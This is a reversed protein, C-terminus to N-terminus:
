IFPCGDGEGAREETGDQLVVAHGDVADFAGHSTGSFRFDDTLNPWRSSALVLDFNVHAAQSQCRSGTTLLLASNKLEESQEVKFFYKNLKM